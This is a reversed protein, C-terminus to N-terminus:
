EIKSVRRISLAGGGILASGVTLVGGSVDGSVVETVILLCGLLWGSLGIILLLARALVVQKEKREQFRWGAELRAM